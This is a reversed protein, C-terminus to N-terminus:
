GVGGMLRPGGDSIRPLLNAVPSQGMTLWENHEGQARYTFM